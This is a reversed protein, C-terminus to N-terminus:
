LSACFCAQALVASSSLTLAIIREYQPALEEFTALFDGPTPQSTTPLEAERQVAYRAEPGYNDHLQQHHHGGM